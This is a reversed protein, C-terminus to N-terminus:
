AARPQEEAGSSPPQRGAARRRPCEAQAAAVSAQFSWRRYCGAVAPAGHVSAVEERRRDAGPQEYRSGGPGEERPEPRLPTAPRHEVLDPVGVDHRVQAALGIQELHVAADAPAGGLDHPQDPLADLEPIGLDEVVYGVMGDGRRGVPVGVRGQSPAPLGVLIEGVLHPFQAEGLGEALGIRSEADHVDDTGLGPQALGPMTSQAPSLWVQVCPAIPRIEQPPSFESFTRRVPVTMRRRGRVMRTFM